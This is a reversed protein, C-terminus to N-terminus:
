PDPDAVSCANCLFIISFKNVVLLNFNHTTDQAQTPHKQHVPVDVTEQILRTLSGFGFLKKPNLDPWFTRIPKSESRGTGTGPVDNIM